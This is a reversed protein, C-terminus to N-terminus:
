AYAQRLLDFLIRGTAGWVTEDDLDYFYVDYGPERGWREAHFTDSEALEVLPVWLVRDVEGTASPGVEPRTSLSGVLPVIYSDSVVTQVHGLEGREVVLTPELLVEEWAERVAAQWPTEGPDMRGGPFSIEGRHNRLEASRKTLLVEAGRDGDALAVLVASMRSRESRREVARPSGPQLRAVVDEVSLEAERGAWPPADGAIWASPRPIFQAGGPRKTV